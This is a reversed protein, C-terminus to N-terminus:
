GSIYSGFTTSFTKTDWDFVAIDPMTIQHHIELATRDEFQSAFLSLVNGHAVIGIVNKDSETTVISELAYTFRNTAEALSEGNGHREITGSYIAHIFGEYDEKWDNTLSTLETLDDRQKLFVGLHEAVIIGTHIAKLQNSTYILEIDALLPHPALKTANVVGKESLSWLPNYKNAVAKTNAHRILVFKM